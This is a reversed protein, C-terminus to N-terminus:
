PRWPLSIPHLRPYGVRPLVIPPGICARIQLGTVHTPHFNRRPGPLPRNRMRSIDHLFCYFIRRSLFYEDIDVM